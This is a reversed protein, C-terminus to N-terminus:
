SESSGLPDDGQAAESLLQRVEDESTQTFDVYHTGVAHFPEPTEIVLARDVTAEIALLTAKPAVPVALTITGAKNRRIAEIAARMTSGTAIGDDVLIVAKGVLDLPPRDARYARERRELEALERRTVEAVMEPTIALREIAATNLVQVGGSAIAGMAYERHGPVGLKRVIYVDLPLGLRQAVRAGVPVGGGPLALVIGNPIDDVRANVLQGLLEGAHDRDRFM